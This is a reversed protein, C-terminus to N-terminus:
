LSAGASLLAPHARHQASHADRGPADSSAVAPSRVEDPPSAAVHSKPVGGAFQKVDDMFEERAMTRFDQFLELFAADVLLEAHSVADSKHQVHEKALRVREADGSERAEEFQTVAETLAFQALIRREAKQEILRRGANVIAENRPSFLVLHQRHESM